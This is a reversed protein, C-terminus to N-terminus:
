KYLYSLVALSVGGLSLAIGVYHLLRNARVEKKKQRETHLFYADVMNPQNEDYKMFDCSKRKLRLFKKDEDSGVFDKKRWEKM